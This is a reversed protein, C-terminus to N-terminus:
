PLQFSIAFVRLCILVETFNWRQSPGATEIVVCTTSGKRKNILFIASLRSQLSLANLFSNLLQQYFLTGIINLTCVPLFTWHANCSLLCCSTSCVPIYTFLSLRWVFVDFYLQNFIHSLTKKKYFIAARSEDLAQACDTLSAAAWSYLKTYSHKVGAAAMFSCTDIDDYVM